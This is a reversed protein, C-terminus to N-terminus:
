GLPHYTQIIRNFLPNFIDTYDKDWYLTLMLFSTGRTEYFSTGEIGSKTSAWSWRISLDPQTQAESIRVDNAYLEKLLELAIRDAKARTIPNGDDYTINEIRAHGDPSLFKDLIGNNITNKQYTWNTPIELIFLNKSGNFDYVINYPIIEATASSNFLASQIIQEFLPNNKEYTSASTQFHMYFVLIGERQYISLMKQPINGSDFTSQLTAVSKQNDVKREVQAYNRLGAYNNNETADVFNAFGLENLEIGTNVANVEISASDDPATIITFSEQEDVKWNVPIKLQYILKKHTYDILEASLPNQTPLGEPTGSVTATYTPIPAPPPTLSTCSVVLLSSFLLLLIKGAVTKM